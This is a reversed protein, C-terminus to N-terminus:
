EQSLFEILFKIIGLIEDIKLFENDRHENYYGASLNVCNLDPYSFRINYVDAIRGEGIQLQYGAQESCLLLGKRFAESCLNIRPRNLNIESGYEDIIENGNKRDLSLVCTSKGFVWGFSKIAFDIGGGGNRGFRRSLGSVEEQAVLLARFRLKTHNMLCLIAAVGAKDDFGMQIEYKKKVQGDDDLTIIDDDCLLHDNYQANPYTDLHAYLLPLNTDKNDGEPYLLINSIEDMEGTWGNQCYNVVIYKVLKQESGSPSPIKIIDKLIQFYTQKM